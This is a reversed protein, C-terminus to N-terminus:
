QFLKFRVGFQAGVYPMTAVTYEQFTSIPYNGAIRFFLSKSEFGLGLGPTFVWGSYNDITLHSTKIPLYIGFWPKPYFGISFCGSIRNGIFRGSDNEYEMGTLYLEEIGLAASTFLPAHHTVARVINLGGAIVSGNSLGSEGATLRAEFGNAIGIAFGGDFMRWRFESFAPILHIEADAYGKELVKGTQFANPDWVYYDWCGLFFLCLLITLFLLKTCNLKPRCVQKSLKWKMSIKEKRFGQM